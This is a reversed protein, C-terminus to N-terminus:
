KGRGGFEELARSYLELDKRNYKKILNIQKHNLEKKNKTKNTVLVKLDRGIFKGLRELSEPFKEVIGVFSFKSLDGGTMKTMTNATQKCFETFPLPKAYIFDTQINEIASFYQSTVREIPHRLFTIVPWGLHEYKKITFHGHIVDYKKYKQPYGKKFRNPYHSDMTDFYFIKQKNRAMRYTTDLLYKRKYIRKLNQSVSTGATKM